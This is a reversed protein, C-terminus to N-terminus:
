EVEPIWSNVKKRSNLILTSHIIQYFLNLLKILLITFMLLSKMLALISLNEITHQLLPKGGVSVLAKPIKDTIPKLRTGRGAAFIMAKM